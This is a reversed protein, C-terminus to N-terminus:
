KEFDGGRLCDLIDLVMPQFNVLPDNPWNRDYDQRCGYDLASGGHHNTSIFKEIATIKETKSAHDPVDTIEKLTKDLKYHLATELTGKLNTPYKTECDRFESDFIKNKQTIDENSCGIIECEKIKGARILNKEGRISHGTRTCEDQEAIDTPWPSCGDKKYRNLLIAVNSVYPCSIKGLKQMKEVPDLKREDEINIYGLSRSQECFKKDQEAKLLKDPDCGHESLDSYANTPNWVLRKRRNFDYARKALTKTSQFLDEFQNDIYKEPYDEDSTQLQAFTAYKDLYSSFCDYMKDEYDRQFECEDKTLKSVFRKDTYCKDLKV